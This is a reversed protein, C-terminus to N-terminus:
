SNSFHLFQGHRRFISISGFVTAKTTIQRLTTLRIKQNYSRYFIQAYIWGGQNFFGGEPPKKIEPETEIAADYM